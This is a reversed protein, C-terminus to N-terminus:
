LVYVITQRCHPCENSSKKLYDYCTKCISHCSITNEHVLLTNCMKDCCLSCEESITNQKNYEMAYYLTKEDTGFKELIKLIVDDMKHQFAFSLATKDMKHQFDFNIAAYM